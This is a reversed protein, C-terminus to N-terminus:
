TADRSCVPASPLPTFLAKAQRGFLPPCAPFCCCRGPICFILLALALTFCSAQGTDVTSGSGFLWVARYTCCVVSGSGFLIRVSPYFLVPVHSFLRYFKHNQEHLM